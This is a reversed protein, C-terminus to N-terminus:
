RIDFDAITALFWLLKRKHETDLGYISAADRSREWGNFHERWIGLFTHESSSLQKELPSVKLAIVKDRREDTIWFDDFPMIPSSLPVGVVGATGCTKYVLLVDRENPGELDEILRALNVCVESVYTQTLPLREGERSRGASGEREPLM